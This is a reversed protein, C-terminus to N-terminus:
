KKHRKRAVELFDRVPIGMVCQAVQQIMDRWVPHHSLSWAVAWACQIRDRAALVLRVHDNDAAFTDRIDPIVFPSAGHDLMFELDDTSNSYTHFIPYNEPVDLSGGRRGYCPVNFDAGFEGCIMQMVDPDFNAVAYFLPSSVFRSGSWDLLTCMHVNVKHQHLFMRIEDVNKREFLKRFVKGGEREGM